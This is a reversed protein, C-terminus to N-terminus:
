SRSLFLVLTKFLDICYLLKRELRWQPDFHLVAVRIFVLCVVLLQIGSNVSLTGIKVKIYEYSLFM